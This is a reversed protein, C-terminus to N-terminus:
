RDLLGMEKLQDLQKKTAVLGGKISLKSNRDYIVVFGSGDDCMTQISAGFFPTQNFEDAIQKSKIWDEIKDGNAM